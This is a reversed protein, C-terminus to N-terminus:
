SSSSPGSRRPERAPGDDVVIWSAGLKGFRVSAGKELRVPMGRTIRAGNVFTGNTSGLDYVCFELAGDVCRYDLVAHCRSVDGDALDLLVNPGGRGVYTNPPVNVCTHNQRLTAM